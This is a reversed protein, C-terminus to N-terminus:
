DLNGDGNLDIAVEQQVSNMFHQLIEETLDKGGGLNTFLAGITYIPGWPIGWWGMILSLFTYPLGKSVASGNSPIFYIDSGRKFTMILISICYSYSVFKAGRQIEDNIDSLSMGEIGKIKAM